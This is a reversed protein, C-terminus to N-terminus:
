DDDDRGADNDNVASACASAVVTPQAYVVSALLSL